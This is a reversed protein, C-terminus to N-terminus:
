IGVLNAKRHPDLAPPPLVGRRAGGSLQAAQAGRLFAFLLDDGFETAGASIYRSVLTGGRRIRRREAAPRLADHTGGDVFMDCRDAREPTHLPTTVNKGCGGREEGM